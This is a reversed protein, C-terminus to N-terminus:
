EVLGHKKLVDYVGWVKSKANGTGINSFCVIATSTEPFRTMFSSFGWDGGEYWVIDKGEYEALVLGFADNAKPHEFKM